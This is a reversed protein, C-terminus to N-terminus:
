GHPVNINEFAYNCMTYLTNKEEVFKKDGIAIREDTDGFVGGVDIDILGDLYDIFDDIEYYECEYVAGIEIVYYDLGPVTWVAFAKKYFILENLNDCPTYAIDDCEGEVLYEGNLIKRSPKPSSFCGSYNTRDYEGDIIRLVEGNAKKLETVVGM